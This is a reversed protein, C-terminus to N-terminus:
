GLLLSKFRSFNDPIRVSQKTGGLFLKLKEPLELRADIADEVVSIFKTPHATELFIGTAEKNSALYKKLGLLGVAGHPDVIYGQKQFVSKMISKTEADSFSYGTVVSSIQNWDGQFLDLIRAFNSPNGVDMANSITSVSPKPLFEKTLLYNPVIDNANTSAVYHHISLGLKKAILGATLNGFNGSPVSFVV